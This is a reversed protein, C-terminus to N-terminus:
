VRLLIILWPLVLILSDEKMELLLFTLLYLLKLADCDLTSIPNCVAVEDGAPQINRAIVVIDQYDFGSVHEETAIVYANEEGPLAYVRVHHPIAGSFTNLADESFLIRNNFYPWRSYFGFSSSGPDFAAAGTIAPNLLKGTVLM